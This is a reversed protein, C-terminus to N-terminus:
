TLDLRVKKGTEAAEYISYLLKVDRLGMEGPVRNEAGTLLHNAFADMQLCQQNVRPFDM